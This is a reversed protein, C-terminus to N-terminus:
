AANKTPALHGLVFAVVVHRLHIHAEERCIAASHAHEDDLVPLKNGVCRDASLRAAVVEIALIWPCFTGESQDLPLRGLDEGVGEFVIPQRQGAAFRVLPEDEKQTDLM